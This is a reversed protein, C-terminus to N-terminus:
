ILETLDTEETLKPPEKKNRYNIESAKLILTFDDTIEVDAFSFGRSQMDSLASIFKWISINHAIM